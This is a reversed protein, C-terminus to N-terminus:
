CRKYDVIITVCRDRLIATATVGDHYKYTKKHINKDLRDNTFSRYAMESVTFAYSINGIKSHIIVKEM